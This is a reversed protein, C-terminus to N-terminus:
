GKEKDIDKVWSDLIKGGVLQKKDRDSDYTFPM